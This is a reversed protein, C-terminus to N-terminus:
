SNLARDRSIVIPNVSRSNLQAEMRANTILKQNEASLTPVQFDRNGQVSSYQNTWENKTFTGTGFTSVGALNASLGGLEPTSRGTLRNVVDNSVKVIQTNSLGNIAQAVQTNGGGNDTGGGGGNNAGGGGTENTDPLRAFLGTNATVGSASEKSGPKTGEERTRENPLRTNDSLRPTSPLNTPLKPTSM